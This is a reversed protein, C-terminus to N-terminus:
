DYEPELLGYGGDKRQYLVCVRGQESLFVFFSHGLLQMQLIAEQESMMQLPFSKRRLIKSEEEQEDPLEQELFLPEQQYAGEHLRQELKKRHRRIQQELKKLAADVSAYMDGSSEEARLMVGDELQVMVEAIHRAKQISLTILLETEERFYRDMKAARKEANERLYQSIDIGKGKVVTRM